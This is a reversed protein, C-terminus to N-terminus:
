YVTGSKVRDGMDLLEAVSDVAHHRGADRPPQRTDPRTVAVVAGLGFEAAADLVAHSDDVFLTRRPDFDLRQRLRPWFDASEKPVGFEHSSVCEDFFGGLGSVGRKVHLTDGHANTVLVLRKGTARAQQLFERAGPLYRIRHSSASKLARLDLSLAASWYDLCYWELSGQKRAYHEFLETRVASAPLGRARALCRPVAERWFWNDFSLDLLTGDMDLLVTPCDRWLRSVVSLERAKM